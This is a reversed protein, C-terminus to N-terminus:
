ICLTPCGCARCTCPLPGLSFSSGVYNWLAARTHHAQEDRTGCIVHWTGSGHNCNSAQRALSGDAPSKKSADYEVGAVDALEKARELPLTPLLKSWM